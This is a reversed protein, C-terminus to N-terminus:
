AKLICEAFIKFLFFILFILFLLISPLKRLLYRLHFPKQVLANQLESPLLAWSLCSTNLREGECLLSDQVM